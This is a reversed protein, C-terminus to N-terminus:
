TLTERCQGPTRSSRRYVLSGELLSRDAEAQLTSPSFAHAMVGPKTEKKLPKQQTALAARLSGGAEAEPAAPVGPLLCM